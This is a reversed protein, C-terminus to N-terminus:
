VPKPDRRTKKFDICMKKTKSVNFYLYTDDCWKAFSNIEEIYVSGDDNNIKRTIESDDASKIM